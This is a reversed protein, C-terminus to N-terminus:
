FIGCVHACINQFIRIRIRVNIYINMDKVAKVDLVKKPLDQTNQHSEKPLVLSKRLPM